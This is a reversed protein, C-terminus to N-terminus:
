AKAQLVSESRGDLDRVLWEEGLHGNPRRYTGMAKSAAVIHPWQSVHSQLVRQMRRLVWKKVVGGGLIDPLMMAEDEAIIYLHSGGHQRQQKGDQSATAVLFCGYRRRNKQRDALRM